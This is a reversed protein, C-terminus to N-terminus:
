FGKTPEVAKRQLWFLPDLMEPVRVALLLWKGKPNIGHTGLWVSGAHALFQMGKRGCLMQPLTGPLDIEEEVFGRDPAMAVFTSPLTSTTQGVSICSLSHSAARSENKRLDLCKANSRVPVPKDNPGPWPRTSM